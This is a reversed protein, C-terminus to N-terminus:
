SLKQLKAFNAMIKKTGVSDFAVELLCDNGMPTAGIVLGAGFVRHKVRDGVAVQDGSPAPAKGAASLGIKDSAKPSRVVKSEGTGVGGFSRARSLTQDEVQCLQTPIEGLFRSPRNRNTQGFLMRQAANSLYLRRKARTIGVYALRREEEIQTPDYMAQVGPFLGEEMGALFVNNYELGKASHITMMVVNDANPDYTDMDTYLAVEELFGSLTADENEQEYTVMNSKLEEVNELRTKGEEGQARLYTLYGTKELVLDLLQDIPIEDVQDMLEKMMGAFELVPKAKKSLPAYQDATAMVEFMSIELTEGIQQCLAVTADGIGRKPENVIRKLRVQDNPNNLVSLYSLVDKVEKREYFKVGSIVRYPIGSRVLAREISNSQANMRYLIAHDSFKEGNKVNELITDAIFRSEEQEDLARCVQIPEGEENETWLTKGKRELNHVIVENAAQLIKKTCRYNQELRIVAAGEFQQEFSLINEINAGRFKYISQDDDGVVCLNHHNQALLSVLMYQAHNTDQYEDVMIYRFRNQYHELVDPYKQFLQVTLSIIDDFDVANAAKLQRQYAEYVRAVQQTRYNGASHAELEGPSLMQDKASSIASLLVRPPFAKDDLRLNKSVEKIVRLSDDTDYITFSSTYGLRDIERRLIRVCASHFTSAQIDLAQEGLMRELREKLEGAAKNTFTIALIQWPRVPYSATLGALRQRDQSRGHAFERLFALDEEELGAPVWTSHYANGFEVMNAIRNVLVTTKGSGAGALILVPGQVQFVAEQQMPNLHSFAQELAQKKLSLYQEAVTQSM